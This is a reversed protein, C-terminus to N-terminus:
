AEHQFNIRMMDRWSWPTDANVSKGAQQSALWIPLDGPKAPTAALTQCKLSDM